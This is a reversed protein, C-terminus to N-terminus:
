KFPKATYHGKTDNVAIMWRHPPPPPLYFITSLLAWEIIEVETFHRRLHLNSSATEKHWCDAITSNKQQTLSFLQPFTGKLSSTEVWSDKWFSTAARSGNSIFLITQHARPNNFNEHAPNSPPAMTQLLLIGRFLPRRRKTDRFGSLLSVQKKIKLDLWGSAKKLSLSNSRKGSWPTIGRKRYQWEM